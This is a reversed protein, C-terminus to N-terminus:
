GGYGQWESWTVDDPVRWTTGDRWTVVWTVVAARQRLVAAYKDTARQAQKLAREFETPEPKRRVLLWGIALGLLFWRM